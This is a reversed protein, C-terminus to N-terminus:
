CALVLCIVIIELMAKNYQEVVIDKYGSRNLHGVCAAGNIGRGIITIDNPM